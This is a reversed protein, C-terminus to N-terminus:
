YKRADATSSDASAKTPPEACPTIGALKFLSGTSGAEASSIGVGSATAAPIGFSFSPM